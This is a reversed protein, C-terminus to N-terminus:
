WALLRRKVEALEASPERAWEAATERSGLDRIKLRGERDV